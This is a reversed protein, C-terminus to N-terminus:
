GWQRSSREPSFILNELVKLVDRIVVRTTARCIDKIALFALKGQVFM